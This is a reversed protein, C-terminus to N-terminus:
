GGDEWVSHGLWELSAPNRQGAVGMEHEGERMTFAGEGPVDRQIKTMVM